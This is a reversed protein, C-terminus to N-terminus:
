IFLYAIPRTPRALRSEVSKWGIYSRLPFRLPTHKKKGQKEKEGSTFRRLHLLRTRSQQKFTPILEFRPESQISSLFKVLSRKALFKPLM